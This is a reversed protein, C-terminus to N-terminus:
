LNYFLDQCDDIEMAQSLDDIWGPYRSEFYVASIVREQLNGDPFIAQHIRELHGRTQVDLEDERRILRNHLKELNGFIAHFTKGVPGELTPDLKKAQSAIQANSDKLTGSLAQFLENLGAANQKKLVGRVFSEKDKEIMSPDIDYKKLARQIRPELLTVSRRLQVHPMQLGLTKFAKTTQAWYSVEAAGGIYSVTPLLASQWLPRTLVTSSFWDPHEDALAQLQSTSFVVEGTKSRYGDDTKLLHVRPGGAQNFFIYSHKDQFHVQARYGAKTLNNTSERFANIINANDAILKKFFPKNATKVQKDGANFLLLGQNQFLRSIHSAFTALWDAGPQYTTNLFEWLAESHGSGPLIDKLGALLSTIDTPFRRKNMSFGRDNTREDLSFKLPRGDADFVSFHNVEAYDHDEGELWFVPVYNYGNNLRNLMKALKLASLTKHITYLPSVMLGMQQGTVVFLTKGKKIQDLTDGVSADDRTRNQAVLLEMVRSDPYSNYIQKSLAQWNPNFPVGYLEAAPSRNDLYDAILTSNKIFATESM